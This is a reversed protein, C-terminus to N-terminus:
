SRFKLFSEQLILLLVPSQYYHPVSFFFSCFRLQSIQDEGRIHIADRVKHSLVGRTKSVSSNNEDPIDKTEYVRYSSRDRNSYNNDVDSSSDDIYGGCGGFLRHGKRGHPDEM